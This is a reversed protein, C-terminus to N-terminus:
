KTAQPHFTITIDTSAAPGYHKSARVAVIQSDDIWARGNLGDLVKILNDLDPKTTHPWRGIQAISRKWKPWSEAPLFTAILDIEVPGDHPQRTGGGNVLYAALISQEAAQTKADTYTRGAKTFRPRAKAAPTGQLVFRLTDTM